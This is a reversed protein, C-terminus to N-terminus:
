SASPPLSGEGGLVSQEEARGKTGDQSGREFGNTRAVDLREAKESITQLGREFRRRALWGAGVYEKTCDITRAL